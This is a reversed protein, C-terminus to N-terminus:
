VFNYSHDYSQSRMELLRVARGAQQSAKCLTDLFIDRSMHHSCSCTFLYGGPAVLEM